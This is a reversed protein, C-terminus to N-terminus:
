TKSSFTKKRRSFCLTKAMSTRSDATVALPRPRHLRQTRNIVKSPGAMLYIKGYCLKSFVDANILLLFPTNFSIIINFSSNRAKFALCFFFTYKGCAKGNRIKGAGPRNRAKYASGEADIVHDIASIASGRMQILLENSNRRKWLSNCKGQLM